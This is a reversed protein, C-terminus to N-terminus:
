KVQNFDSDNVQISCISDNGIVKIEEDTMVQGVNNLVIPKNSGGKKSKLGIGYTSQSAITMMYKPHSVKLVICLYSM